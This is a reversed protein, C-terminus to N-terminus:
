HLIKFRGQKKAAMLAKIELRDVYDFCGTLNNLRDKKSLVVKRMETFEKNFEELLEQDNKDM